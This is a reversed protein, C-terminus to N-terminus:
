HLDNRIRMKQVM